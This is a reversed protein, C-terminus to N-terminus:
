FVCNCLCKQKFIQNTVLRFLNTVKHSTFGLTSINFYEEIIICMQIYRNEFKVYNIM